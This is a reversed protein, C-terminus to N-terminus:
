RLNFFEKILSVIDWKGTVLGSEIFRVIILAGATVVAWNAIIWGIVEKM